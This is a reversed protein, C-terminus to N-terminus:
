EVQNHPGLTIHLSMGYNELCVFVCSLSLPLFFWGMDMEDDEDDDLNDSIMIKESEIYPGNRTKKTERNWLPKKEKFAGVCVGVCLM